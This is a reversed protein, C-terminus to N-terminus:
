WEEIGKSDLYVYEPKDTFFEAFNESIEGLIAHFGDFDVCATLSNRRAHQKFSSRVRELDFSEYRFTKKKLADVLEMFNILGNKDTDTEDFFMRFYKKADWEASSHDFTANDGVVGLGSEM